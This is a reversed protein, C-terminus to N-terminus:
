QRWIWVLHTQGPSFSDVWSHSFFLIFIVNHEFLWFIAANAHFGIFKYYFVSFQLKGWTNRGFWRIADTSTHAYVFNWRFLSATALSKYQLFGGSNTYGRTWWKGKSRQFFFISCKKIMWFRISLWAIAM